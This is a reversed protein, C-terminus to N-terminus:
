TGGRAFQLSSAVRLRMLTHPWMCSSCAPKTLPDIGLARPDRHIDSGRKGLHEEKRALFAFYETRIKREAFWAVFAQALLTKGSGNPGEFVILQSSSPM